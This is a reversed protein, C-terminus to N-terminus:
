YGSRGRARQIRPDHVGIKRADHRLHDAHPTFFFAVFDLEGSKVDGIHGVVTLFGEAELVAQLLEVTDDSSNFVAIIPKASRREDGPTPESPERAGGDM